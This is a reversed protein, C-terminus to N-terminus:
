HKATQGLDIFVVQMSAVFWLSIVHPLLTRGELNDITRGLLLGVFM